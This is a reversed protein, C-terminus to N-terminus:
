KKSSVSASDDISVEMKSPAEENSKEAQSDAPPDDEGCSFEYTGGPFCSDLNDVYKRTCKEVARQITDTWQQKFKILEEGQRAADAELNKIKEEMSGLEVRQKKVAQRLDEREERVKESYKQEAELKRQSERLDARLRSEQDKAARTIKRMEDLLIHKQQNQLTTPSHLSSPLTFQAPSICFLLMHALIGNSRM